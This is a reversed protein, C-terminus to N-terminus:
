TMGDSNARRRLGDIVDAGGAHALRAVLTRPRARSRPQPRERHHIVRLRIQGCLAAVGAVVRRRTEAKFRGIVDRRRLIATKAM